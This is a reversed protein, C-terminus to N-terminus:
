LLREANGGLILAKEAENRDLSQIKKLGDVVQEAIDDPFIHTHFDITM